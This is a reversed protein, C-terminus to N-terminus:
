ERLTQRAASSFCIMLVADVDGVNKAYHPLNAPITITDGESLEVEKGGEISHVLKGQMVHVVEECNPHSHFDGGCGAKVTCRALTIGTANGVEKSALWTLTGSELVEVPSDARNLIVTKEM